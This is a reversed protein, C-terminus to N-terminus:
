LKSAPNTRGSWRRSTNSGRQLREAAAAVHLEAAVREAEIIRDVDPAPLDFALGSTSSVFHAVSDLVPFVIVETDTVSSVREIAADAFQSRDLTLLAKKFM